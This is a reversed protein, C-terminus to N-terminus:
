RLRVVLVPHGAQKLQNAQKDAEGRENGAWVTVRYFTSNSVLAKSVFAKYGEKEVKEKLRNASENSKFSGIQIGWASNEVGGTVLKGDQAPAAMVVKTSEATVAATKQTGGESATQPTVPAAVQPATPATSGAVPVANEAKDPAAKPTEDATSAVTSSPAATTTTKEQVIVPKHQERSPESLFFFKIGVILLGVAILGIIPLMLDGFPLMPKKDRQRRNERASM